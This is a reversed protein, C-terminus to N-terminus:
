RVDKCTFYVKFDFIVKFEGVPDINLADIVYKIGYHPVNTQAMDVWQKWMPTYGTSVATRYTQALIAPKFGFKYIKNPQLVICKTKARQKLEDLTEQVGDDYDPCWWLKPYFNSATANGGATNLVSIANPNNVLQARIQVYDIRYRDYLTTFDDKNILNDFTIVFASESTVTTFTNTVPLTWRCFRHVNMRNGLRSMYTRQRVARNVRYQPPPAVYPALRRRVSVRRRVRRGYVSVIGRKPMFCWLFFNLKLQFFKHCKFVLHSCYLELWGDEFM